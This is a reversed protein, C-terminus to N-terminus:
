WGEGRRERTVRKGKERAIEVERYTWANNRLCKVDGIKKYSPENESEASWEADAFRM